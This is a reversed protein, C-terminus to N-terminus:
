SGKTEPWDTWPLPIMVFLTNLDIRDMRLSVEKGNDLRVTASESGVSLVRGSYERGSTSQLVFADGKRLEPARFLLSVTLVDRRPLRKQRGTALELQLVRSGLAGALKGRFSEETCEAVVDDGEGVVPETLRDSAAVFTSWQIKSNLLRAIQGNDLRVFVGSEQDGRYLFRAVYENGSRSRVRFRQGFSPKPLADFSSPSTKGLPGRLGSHSGWTYAM